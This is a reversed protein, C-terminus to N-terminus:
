ILSFTLDQQLNRVLYSVRKDIKIKKEINRCAHLVTTHDRGGFHMGIDMLSSGMIERCLYISIQRAEAIPMRRSSGIIEKESIKTSEAVRKVIDNASIDIPAGNGLRERIVKKVLSFDIECNSLSSYALLRIITSELERVSSKIHTAMFEVMDYPLSLGNQEAKEMLIAVRTEFDPPQVDVVLGSEFRSILRDTLGNMESPLRDSTMVIQKGRQYLDNFTHFFQEQTQEKKQFFQIDDILLADAKRYTKSFDITKNKQISSIFDLTFKESSAIVIKAREKEDLIFNGIAHLLHTKGLGVGGYILLPNFSQQAPSKAVSLAAARAFQNNSGEIFNAFTYRKNLNPKPGSAQKHKVATVDYDPLPQKDPAVTYKINISKGTITDATNNIQNKYHSEIWEYFFQNPVELVLVENRYGILTIPEFWTNFAHSPLSTKLEEKIDIWINDM